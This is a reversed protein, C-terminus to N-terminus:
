RALLLATLIAHPQFPRHLVAGPSCNYVVSPDYRGCRPLLVVLACRPEGPNWLLRAALDPMYDCFFVDPEGSITTPMPWLRAVAARTRQLERVLLDCESDPEACIMVNLEALNARLAGVDASRSGSTNM